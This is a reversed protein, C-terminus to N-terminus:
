AAVAPAPYRLLRLLGPLPGPLTALRERADDVLEYLELKNTDDPFAEHLQKAFEHTPARRGVRVHSIIAQGCGIRKALGAQNLDHKAMLDDLLEAFPHVATKM